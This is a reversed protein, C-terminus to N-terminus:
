RQKLDFRTYLEGGPIVIQGLRYSTPTAGGSIFNVDGIKVVDTSLAGPDFQITNTFSVYGRKFTGGLGSSAVAEQGVDIRSDTMNVKGSISAFQIQSGDTPETIALCTGTAAAGGSCAGVGSTSGAQFNFAATMALYSSGGPVPLVSLTGGASQMQITLGFFHGTTKIKKGATGDSLFDAAFQGDLNIQINGASTLRIGSSAVGTNAACVGASVNGSVSCDTAADMAFFQGNTWTMYGNINRFGIYEGVGAATDALLLGTIKGGTFAPGTGGADSGTFSVKLDFGVGRQQAAAVTPHGGASLWMNANLNYLPLMLTGNANIPVATNTAYDYLTTTRPYAQLEFGRLSLGIGNSTQATTAGFTTTPFNALTGGAPLANVYLNGFNETGNSPTASNGDLFSVFQSFRVYYGNSTGEGIDFTFDSKQLDGKFALKLGGDGAAAGTVVANSGGGAMSADVNLFTGSLGLHLLGSAAATTYTAAAINPNEYIDFNLGNVAASIQPFALTGQMRMGNAATLSFMGTMSGAVYLNNLIILDRQSNLSQATYFEAGNMGFTLAGSGPSVPGTSDFFGRTNHFNLTTNTNTRLAMEGFSSACAAATGVAALCASGVSLLFPNVLIDLGLAPVGAYPGTASNGVDLKITSNLGTLALNRLQLQRDTAVPTASADQWDLQTATAAAAKTIQLTLGDQGSIAGMDEDSLSAISWALRPLAMVMLAIASVTRFRNKNYVNM